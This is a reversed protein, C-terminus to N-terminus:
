FTLMLGFLLKWSYKLSPSSLTSVFRFPRLCIQAVVLYTLLEIMMFLVEVLGLCRQFLLLLVYMEQTSFHMVKITLGIMHHCNCWEAPCPLATCKYINAYFIVLVNCYSHHHWIAYIGHVLYFLSFVYIVHIKLLDSQSIKKM